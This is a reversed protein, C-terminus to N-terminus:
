ALKVGLRNFIIKQEASGLLISIELIARNAIDEVELIKKGYQLKLEKLRQQWLVIETNFIHSDAYFLIKQHITKPPNIAIGFGISKVLDVLEFLGEKKLIRVEPDRYSEGELQTGINHLIGGVYVLNPNIHLNRHKQQLSVAIEYALKGTANNHFVLDPRKPPYKSLLKNAEEVSIM